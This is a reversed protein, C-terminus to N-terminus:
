QTHQMIEMKFPLVISSFILHRLWSVSFYCKELHTLVCSWLTEKEKKLKIKNM